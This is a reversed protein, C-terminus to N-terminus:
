YTSDKGIPIDGIAFLSFLYHFYQEYPESSIIVKKEKRRV